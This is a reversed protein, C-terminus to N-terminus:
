TCASARSGSLEKDWSFLARLAMKGTSGPRWTEGMELTKSCSAKLALYQSVQRKHEADKITLFTNAKKIFIVLM